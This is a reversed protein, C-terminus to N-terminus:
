YVKLTGLVGFDSNARLCNYESHTSSSITVTWATGHVIILMLTAMNKTNPPPPPLPWSGSIYRCLIYTSINRPRAFRARAESVYM